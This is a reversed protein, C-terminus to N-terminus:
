TPEVTQTPTASHQFFAVNPCFERATASGDKGDLWLACQSERRCFICKTRAECWAMGGDVRAAASPSVSLRQMMREMLDPHRASRDLIWYRHDSITMNAEMLSLLSPEPV